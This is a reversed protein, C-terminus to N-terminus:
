KNFDAPATWDETAVLTDQKGGAAIADNSNRWGNSGSELGPQQWIHLKQGLVEMGFNQKYCSNLPKNRWWICAYCYQKIRWCKVQRDQQTSKFRCNRDLCFWELIRFSKMGASLHIRRVLVALASTSSGGSTLKFCATNIDHWKQGLHEMGLKMNPKLLQQLM